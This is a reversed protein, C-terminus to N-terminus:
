KFPVSHQLNAENPLTLIQWFKRQHFKAVNQASKAAFGMLKAVFEALMVVFISMKAIFNM